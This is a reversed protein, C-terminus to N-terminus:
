SPSSSPAVSRVARETERRLHCDAIDALMAFAQYVVIAGAARLGGTACEGLLMWLNKDRMAEVLGAVLTVCTAWLALVVMMSALRRAARYSSKNRVDALVQNTRVGPIGLPPLEVVPDAPLPPAVGLLQHLPSWGRDDLTEPRGDSRALRVEADPPLSAAALETQSLPGVFGRLSAHRVWYRDGM